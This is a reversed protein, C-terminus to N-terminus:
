FIDMVVHQKQRDDDNTPIAYIDRTFTPKGDIDDKIGYDSFRYAFFKHADKTKDQYRHKGRKFTLYYIGDQNKEIHIFIELDVERAVDMSEAIHETDFRKVINKIGTNVLETAKRNLPHATILSIGKSKTYNCANSFLEKVLLHTGVSSSRESGNGKYMLNMYDIVALKIEYGSNEYYEVVNVFDKFGFESPLYRLIIFSWGMKNFFKYMWDIIADDDMDSSDKNNINEYYHKFVWMMNQFAENELSIFLALPKKSIDKLNPKNYLIAHTAVSMCLGSKYNHPLAYFVVSEGEMIGGRGPGTMINLGQLGTKFIGNIARDKYKTIGKKLSDKESFDISEVPKKALTNKMMSSMAEEFIQQIANAQKNIESLEQEQDESNLSDAFKSLAIYGRRQHKSILHWMLAMQVKKATEELQQFSIEVKSLFISELLKLTESKNFASKDTNIKLLLSKLGAEDNKTINNRLIEKILKVYFRSNDNESPTNTKSDDDYIKILDKVTAKTKDSNEYILLIMCDIFFDPSFLM